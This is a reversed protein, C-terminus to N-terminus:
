KRNRYCRVAGADPRSSFGTDAPRSIRMWRGDVLELIACAIRGHSLQSVSLMVFADPRVLIDITLVDPKGDRNEDAALFALPGFTSGDVGYIVTVANDITREPAVDVVLRLPIMQFQPVNGNIRRGNTMATMGAVLAALGVAVILVFRGIGLPRAAPRSMQKLM